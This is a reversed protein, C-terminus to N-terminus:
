ETSSERQALIAGSAADVWVELEVLQRDSQGQQKFFYLVKWAAPVGVDPPVEELLRLGLIPAMQRELHYKIAFQEEVMQTQRLADAASLRIRHEPLLPHASVASAQPHTSCPQGENITMTTPLATDEFRVTVLKGSSCRFTLRVDLTSQDAPALDMAPDAIGKVLVAGADQAAILERSATLQEHWLAPTAARQPASCALLSLSM